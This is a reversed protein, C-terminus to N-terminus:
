GSMETSDVCTVKTVNRDRRVRSTSNSMAITNRRKRRQEEDCIFVDIVARRFHRNRVSYIICNWFSNSLFLRSAIYELSTYATMASPSYTKPYHHPSIFRRFFHNSHRQLSVNLKDVHGTLNESLQTGSLHSGSQFFPCWSLHTGSLHTLTLNPFYNHLM